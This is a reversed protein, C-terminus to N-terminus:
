VFVFNGCGSINWTSNNNKIKDTYSPRIVQPISFMTKPTRIRNIEYRQCIPRWGYVLNEAQVRISGQLINWMFRSVKPPVSPIQNDGPFPASCDNVFLPRAFFACISTQESLSHRLFAIPDAVVSPKPRWLCSKKQCMFKNKRWFTGSWDVSCYRVSVDRVTISVSVNATRM